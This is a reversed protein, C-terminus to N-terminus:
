KKVRYHLQVENKSINKQGLLELNREFDKEKFLSIGEGLIVPEVDIYIEDVLNEALFSSNLIGGGAVVVEKADKFLRLAEKPSNAIQHNKSLTKFTSKSIAVIKVDKLEAFEPQKTLINYTRRGIILHNATRVALSYSDWEEKSIWTATDDKKAIMGNLSMAMYLIVKM